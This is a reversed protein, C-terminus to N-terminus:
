AWARGRVRLGLYMSITMALRAPSPVESENRETLLLLYYTTLLLLPLHYPVESENRETGRMM